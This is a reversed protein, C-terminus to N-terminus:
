FSGCSGQLRVLAIAEEDVCAVEIRKVPRKREVEKKEMSADLKEVLKENTKRAEKLREAFASIQKKYWEAKRALEALEAKESVSNNSSSPLPAESTQCAARSSQSLASELTQVWAGRDRLELDLQARDKRLQAIETRLAQEHLGLSTLQQHSVAFRRKSQSVVCRM